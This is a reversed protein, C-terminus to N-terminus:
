GSRLGYWDIKRTVWMAVALLVFLAAAGALLAFDQLQLIFYLSAYTWGLGGVVVLSRRGTRLVSASYAGVLATSAAAALGYAWVPVLCEGLALYGLFFLVLAAGVMLYQLPHIRLRATVEVLFFNGFVLILFLVGYKIAREVLRYSDVPQLLSVACASSELQALSVAPQDGGEIWQQPYGRGFYAQEWAAVFGDPGVTHRVPLAAGTFSPDAWNSRLEVRTQAGLPAVAFRACGQLLLDVSFPIGEALAKADLPVPAVLTEGGAADPELLCSQEGARLTPATRLGRPFSIGIRVRAQEWQLVAGSIGLAGAVPRFRGRLQLPAEYLPVPFIGRHRVTADLRGTVSLDGPLFVAVAEVTRIVETPMSGGRADKMECVERRPFRCPVVLVPGALLQEGGWAQAVEARAEDRFGTRERRVGDVLLLGIWLLGVLLGILLLKLSVSFPRPRDGGAVPPPLPPTEM